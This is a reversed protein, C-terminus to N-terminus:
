IKFLKSRTAAAERSFFSGFIRNIPGTPFSNLCRLLYVQKHQSAWPIYRKIKWQISVSKKPKSSVEWFWACLRFPFRTDPNCLNCGCFIDLIVLTMVLHRLTLLHDQYLKPMCLSEESATTPILVPETRSNASQTMRPLLVRALASLIQQCLFGAQPLLISVQCKYAFM